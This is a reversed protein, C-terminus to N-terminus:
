ESYLMGDAVKYRDILEVLVGHACRPLVFFSRLDSNGSDTSEQVPQDVNLSIGSEKLQQYTDDLHSSTFAIHHFGEGYKELRKYLPSQQDPPQLLQIDCGDGEASFFATIYKDPGASREQKVVKREILQPAIVRFLNTYDEIAQDIDRVLVCIHIVTEPM